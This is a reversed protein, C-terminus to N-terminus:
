QGCCVALPRETDLRRAWCTVRVGSGLSRLTPVIGNRCIWRGDCRPHFACGDPVDHPEPPESSSALSVPMGDEGRGCPLVLSPLAGASTPRRAACCRAMARPATSPPTRSRSRAGIGVRQCQGGSLAALATSSNRSFGSRSSCSPSGGACRRRRACSTVELVERLTRFQQARVHATAPLAFGLELQARTQEALADAHSDLLRWELIM